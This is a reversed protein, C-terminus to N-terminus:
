VCDEKELNEVACGCEPCRGGILGRLNYLCKPCRGPALVGPPSVYRGFRWAFYVSPLFVLGVPLWKEWTISLWYELCLGLISGISCIVIQTKTMFSHLTHAVFDDVLQHPEGPEPLRLARFVERAVRFRHGCTTCRAGATVFIGIAGSIRAKVVDTYGCQPCSVSDAAGNKARSKKRISM